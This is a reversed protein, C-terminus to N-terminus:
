RIREGTTADGSHSIDRVIRAVMKGTQRSALVGRTGENLRNRRRIRPTFPYLSHIYCLSCRDLRVRNPLHCLVTDWWLLSSVM